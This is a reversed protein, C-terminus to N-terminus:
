YSHFYVLIRLLQENISSDFSNFKYLILIIYLKSHIRRVHYKRLYLSRHTSTRPFPM